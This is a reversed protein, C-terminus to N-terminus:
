NVLMESLPMQIKKARTKHLFVESRWFIGGGTYQEMENMGNKLLTLENSPKNLDSKSCKNDKVPTCNDTGLVYIRVILDDYKKSLFEISEKIKQM